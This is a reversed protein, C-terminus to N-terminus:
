EWGLNVVPQPPMLHKISLLIMARLHEGQGHGQATDGGGVTARLLTNGWGHGQATDGWGHGQATDGGSRPRTCHKGRVMARHLTERPGHGETTDGGPGLLTMESRGEEEPEQGASPATPGERDNRPPIFAM